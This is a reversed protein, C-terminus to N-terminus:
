ENPNFYLSNSANGALRGFARPPVCTGRAIEYGLM